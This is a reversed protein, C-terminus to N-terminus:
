AASPSGALSSIESTWFNGLAQIDPFLTPDAVINACVKGNYTIISVQTIVNPFVMQLEDVQEGGEKPFTIPVTTAPVNSILLTHKSFTESAAKRLISLPSIGTAFNTFGILGSMYAKSKLDSCAGVTRRVREEQDAEDIPLPCSAFLIKNCMSGCPDKEDVERPLAMMMMAKFELSEGDAQLRKDGRVEAGYRRLAGTLAALLVDNVTCAYRERAASVSAMSVAPFRACVRRRNFRIFPTREQLPMNISLESDHRAVLPAALGRFFSGVGCSGCCGKAPPSAAPAQQKQQRQQQQQKRRVSAPLLPGPLPIKALPDGGECGMMPSFAFLTALGDGISHHMRVWAASRGPGRPRLLVVRWAPFSLDLEELMAAQVHADIGAEDAVQQEQFHYARDMPGQCAVWQGGEIRSSFRHCPWLHAEAAAALADLQPPAGTFFVLVNVIPAIMDMEEPWTGEVFRAGMSSMQRKLVCPEEMDTM